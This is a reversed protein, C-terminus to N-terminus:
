ESEPQYVPLTQDMTYDATNVVQEALIQYYHGRVPSASPTVSVQLTQHNNMEFNKRIPEASGQKEFSDSFSGDQAAKEIQADLDALWLQEQNRTNYYETVSDVYRSSLTDDNKASSLALAAFSILILVVFLLPLFSLGARPQLIPLMESDSNNSKSGRGTSGDLGGAAHDAADAGGIALGAAGDTCGMAHGATLDATGRITGNTTNGATNYLFHTM